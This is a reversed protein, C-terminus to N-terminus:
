FKVFGIKREILTGLVARLSYIGNVYDIRASLMDVRAQLLEQEAEILDFNDAMGYSFKITALSMKGEAQTVKDRRITIRKEVAELAVLQTRVQRYIEDQRADQNLRATELNIRSQQYAAKESTRSVDTSSVLQIGWSAEDLSTSEGFDDSSGFRNYNLVLNLKPLINHKAIRSNRQAQRIEDEAQELEVRNKMAIEVADRQRLRIPTYELPASFDLDSELPLALIIKLRDEADRLDQKSSSVSDQVDKLRIEARYVDMPTALGIKEKIRAADAHQQLKSALSENLRVLERQKIVQYVASVTELVTNVMTQYLSRQSTRTSYEASRIGALNVERGFGRLLPQNISLGVGSTYESDKTVSPEISLSTGAEFKRQLELGLGLSKDSESDSGTVGLTTAPMIKLEFESLASKLSLKQSELSYQSVLLNRNAKLALNIAEELTLYITSGERREGEHARVAIGEGYILSPCWNLALILMCIVIAKIRMSSM